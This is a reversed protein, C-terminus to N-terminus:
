GAQAAERIRRARAAAFISRPDDGAILRELEYANLVSLDADNYDFNSQSSEVRERFRGPRHAKLLTILLTDSYERIRGCEEGQYFVPKEVGIFARRRAELELADCATELATNWAEAFDPASEYLRYATSREVGARLAAESINGTASLYSLFAKEWKAKRRPKPTANQQTAEAM